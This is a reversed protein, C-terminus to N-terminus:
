RLCPCEVIVFVCLFHVIIYFMLVCDILFSFLDDWLDDSMFVLSFGDVASVHCCIM